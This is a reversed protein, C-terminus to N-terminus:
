GEAFWRGNGIRNFVRIDIRFQGALWTLDENSLEEPHFFSPVEGWPCDLHKAYALRIETLLDPGQARLWNICHSNLLATSLDTM